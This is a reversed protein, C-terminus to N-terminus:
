STCHPCSTERVDEYPGHYYYRDISLPWVALDFQDCMFYWFPTYLQKTEFTLELNGNDYLFASILCDICLTPTEASPKISCYRSIWQCVVKHIINRTEEDSFHPEHQGLVIYGKKKAM